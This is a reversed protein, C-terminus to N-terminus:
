GDRNILAINESLILVYSSITSRRSSTNAFFSVNSKFYNMSIQVVTDESMNRAMMMRSYFEMGHVAFKKRKLLLKSSCIFSSLSFGIEFNIFAGPKILDSEVMPESAGSNSLMLGCFDSPSLIAILYILAFGYEIGTASEFVSKLSLPLM